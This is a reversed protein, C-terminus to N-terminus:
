RPGPSGPSSPSGSRAYLEREASTRPAPPRGGLLRDFPGGPWPAGDFSGGLDIGGLNIGGRSDAPDPGATGAGSRADHGARRAPDSLVAYAEAIEGFRRDADPATSTDPHYKRALRRFANRIARADADPPVGLVQYCDRRGTM